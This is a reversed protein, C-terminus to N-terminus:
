NNEIRTAGQVTYRVPVGSVGTLTKQFVITWSVQRVSNALADNTVTVPNGTSDFYKFTLSQVDRAVVEVPTCVTAPTSIQAPATISPSVSAPSAPFGLGSPWNADSPDPYGWCQTREIKTGNLRYFVRDITAVWGAGITGTPASGAKDNPWVPPVSKDFPYALRLGSTGGAAPAVATAMSFPNSAQAHSWQGTGDVIIIPEGPALRRTGWPCTNEFGTNCNAFGAFWLSTNGMTCDAGMCLGNNETHWAIGDRGTGLANGTGESRQMIPPGFVAYNSDPRPLDGVIGIATATAVLLRQKTFKLQNVSSGACCDGYLFVCTGSSCDKQIHGGTAPPVGIGAQRIEMNLMQSVFEADRQLASHARARKNDTLVTALVATATGVVIVSMAIGITLEILTFGRLQKM